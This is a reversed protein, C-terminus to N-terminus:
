KKNKIDYELEFKKFKLNRLTIKNLYGYLNSKLKKIIVNRWFKLKNIRINLILFWLFVYKFQKIIKIIKDEKKILTIIQKNYM